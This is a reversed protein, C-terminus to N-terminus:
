IYVLRYNFLYVRTRSIIYTINVDTICSHAEQTSFSIVSCACRQHEFVEKCVCTFDNLTFNMRSNTM